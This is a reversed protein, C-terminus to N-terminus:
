ETKENEAVKVFDNKPIVNVRSMVFGLGTISIKIETGKGIRAKTIGFSAVSYENLNNKNSDFMRELVGDEPLKRFVEEAVAQPYTIKEQGISAIIFSDEPCNIKLTSTYKTDALVQSPSILNIAIRKASGYRLFTKEFIIRDSTIMWKNNFKELYYVSNSTSELLGKENMIGSKSDTTAKATENVQVIAINETIQINRIAMKYKIDPYSAWTKKILDFYVKGDLGDMNIYNNSYLSKLGDIDYSNAYKLHSQLVRKVEECPNKASAKPAPQENFFGIGTLLTINESQAYSKSCSIFLITLVLILKKM